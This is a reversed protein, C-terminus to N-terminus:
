TLVEELLGLTKFHLATETPLTLVDGEKVPGYTRLDVDTVQEIPKLARVVVKSSSVTEKLRNLISLKVNRLAFQITKMRRELEILAELIFKEEDPLSTWPIESGKGKLVMEIMKNVRLLFLRSLLLSVLNRRTNLLKFYLTDTEVEGLTLDGLDRLVQKYFNSSLSCLNESSLEEKILSTIDQMHTSISEM